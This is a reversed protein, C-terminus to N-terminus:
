SYLVLRMPFCKATSRIFRPTGFPSTQKCIDNNKDM